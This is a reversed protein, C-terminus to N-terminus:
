LVIVIYFARIALWPVVGTLTEVLVLSQLLVRLAVVRRQMCVDIGDQWLQTEWGSILLSQAIRSYSLLCSVRFECRGTDFLLSDLMWCQGASLVFIGRQKPKGGPEQDQHRAKESSNVGFPRCSKLREFDHLIYLM